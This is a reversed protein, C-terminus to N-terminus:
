GLGKVFSSSAECGNSVAGSDLIRESEYLPQGQLRNIRGRQVGLLMAADLTPGVLYIVV